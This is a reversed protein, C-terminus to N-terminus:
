KGKQQNRYWRLYKQVARNHENLSRSFQHGGDGKAVFYLYPTKAPHAVAQLAGNTVMAIPTPPLGDIIYTNYATATTLDKKRINGKYKEGMGYIVTPDTQLKMHRRLRNIFVSAVQPRESALGTEKEVISALILMEYPNKLPLDKDRNEWANKLEEQLRQTARKLLDLDTSNPTYSYTDPYLWGDINQWEYPQKTAIKHTPLHLLSFIEAESKGQLTQKLHPANALAQRWDKFRKGEIFQVHFQAEKGKNLTQILQGINHVNNLSFTGAKIHNIEPKLKLLWPLLQADNILKDQELIHALKKTNTGKPIYILQDKKATIPADIFSIVKQYAVFIVGIALIFLVCGILLFKKIM